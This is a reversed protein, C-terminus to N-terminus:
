DMSTCDTELIWKAIEAHEVPEVESLLGLVSEVVSDLDVVAAPPIVGHSIDLWIM